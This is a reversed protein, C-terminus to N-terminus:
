DFTMLMSVINRLVFDLFVPTSTPELTHFRGVKIGMSPISKLLRALVKNKALTWMERDKGANLNMLELNVMEEFLEPIKFAKEYILAYAVTMNVFIVYYMVAFVPHEKFHAIAAYGSIISIGLSVLKWTFILNRNINNVM